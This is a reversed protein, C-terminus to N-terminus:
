RTHWTIQSKPFHIMQLTLFCCHLRKQLQTLMIRNHDEKASMEIYLNIHLLRFSHQMETKKIRYTLITSITKNKLMVVVILEVEVAVVYMVTAYAVM